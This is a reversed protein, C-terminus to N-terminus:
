DGLRELWVSRWAGVAHFGLKRYVAGAAPRKWYLVPQKGDALLDACLRDYGLRGM